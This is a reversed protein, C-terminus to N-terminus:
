IIQTTTPQKRSNRRTKSSIAFNSHAATVNLATSIFLHLHGCNLLKTCYCCNMNQYRVVHQKVQWFILFDYNHKNNQTESVTNKHKSHLRNGSQYTKNHM